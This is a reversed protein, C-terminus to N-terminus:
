HVRSGRRIWDVLAAPCGGRNRERLTSAGGALREPDRMAPFLVVERISRVGCLLM